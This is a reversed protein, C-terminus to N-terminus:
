NVTADKAARAQELMTILGLARDNELLREWPSMALNAEVLSMDIGADVAAMWAPGADPPPVYKGNIRALTEEDYM